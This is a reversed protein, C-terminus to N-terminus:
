HLPGSGPPVPSAGADPAEMSMSLPPPYRPPLVRSTLTPQEFGELTLEHPLAVEIGGEKCAAHLTWLWQQLWVLRKTCEQDRKQLDEIRADQRAIREILESRLEKETRASRDAARDEVDIERQKLQNKAQMAQIKAQGRQAILALVAGGCMTGLIQVVTNPSLGEFM